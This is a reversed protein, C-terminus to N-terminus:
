AAMLKRLSKICRKRKQRVFEYSYDMIKAIDRDGKKEFFTLKLLQECDAKLQKLCDYLQQDKAELEKKEEIEDEHILIMNSDPDDMTLQLGSKKDTRLRKLWLNYIIKYLYAKIDHEISFDKDKRLKKIFVFLAEQFLDKADDMTGNNRLIHSACYKFAIEYLQAIAQNDGQKIRAMLAQQDIPERM